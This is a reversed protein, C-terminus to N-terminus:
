NQGLRELLLDPASSPGVRHSRALCQGHREMQEASFLRARLPSEDAMTERAGTVHRLLRQWQTRVNVRFPRGNM